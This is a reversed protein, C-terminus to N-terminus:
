RRDVRWLLFVGIGAYIFNEIWAAPVPDLMGANGMSRAISMIVYYIAVLAITLSVAIFIGLRGFRFGLPAALLAVVFAALPLSYKLYYDVESAKTDVGSKKLERIHRRLEATTQEQPSLEGHRYYTQPDQNVRLSRSAFPLEAAVFNNADYRHEIGNGLQWDNGSWIGSKATLVVPIQGSRDFVIVDYLQNTRQDIQKVYFYRNGEGKFFVNDKFIPKQQRLMLTRVLEMVQRNSWPVVQDNFWFGIASVGFSAVLIPICLRRFSIGCARLATVEFDRSLRGVALLTAFLYAVPFTIVMIAPLNYFLLRVVVMVPVGSQVILSAFIYLLNVLNMLVFGGIGALFPRILERILYRDFITIM